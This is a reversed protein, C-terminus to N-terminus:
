NIRGENLIKEKRSAYVDCFGRDFLEAFNHCQHCVWIGPVNQKKIVEGWHHYAKPEKEGCIECVLPKPRKRCLINGGKTNLYNQQYWERNKQPNQLRKVKTQNILCSKCVRDKRKASSKYWNEDTLKTGCIRCVDESEWWKFGLRSAKHVISAYSRHSLLLFPSIKQTYAKELLKVEEETWFKRNPLKGDLDILGIRM